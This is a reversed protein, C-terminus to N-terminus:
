LLPILQDLHVGHSGKLLILKREVPHTRLYMILEDVCAFRLIEPAADVHLFANGVLITEDSFRAVWQVIKRHEEAEDSGLELMDGLIMLRDKGSSVHLFHKVSAAMSTPNANYCDIMLQNKASQKFQSRFNQPQYHTLAAVIDNPDIGLNVGVAIAAMVNPFNYDGVLSTNICNGEWVLKLTFSQGSVTGLVQAGPGSGYTVKHVMFPEAMKMILPDDAYCFLSGSSNNSLAHFLEKKASIVGELSGFGEIHAKGISTIIGSTPMAMECLFAIEGQHNAGMEVILIETSSTARLLTLPVGIHNNLNGLTAVVKYKSEMVATILEKTTTKGNSGTIGLVMKPNISKRHMKAITQLTSLVDSVMLMRPHHALSPDDIVAYSAGKQLAEMAYKNGDFQDGKLAFFLDDEAINRSDTTVGSHQLFHDYIEEAALMGPNM